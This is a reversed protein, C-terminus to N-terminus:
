RKLGPMDHEFSLYLLVGRQGDNARFGIPFALGPVIQLGSSFDHSWRIGPALTVGTSRSRSVSTGAVVFSETSTAVAELMLNVRPHVLWVASQGANLHLLRDTSGIGTAAGPSFTFGANSHLALTPTAMYSSALAGQIGFTGGGLKDSATPLILTLRPTVALRTDGSGIMQLRYNLAIDSLAAGGGDVSHQLPITLSLQHRQGNVPWEDTLAYAWTHVNRDFIVSSIHQIVGAEQNYAEELLFSNDQIPKSAQSAGAPRAQASATAAVCLSLALTLRLTM